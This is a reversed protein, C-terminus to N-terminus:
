AAGGSCEQMQLQGAFGQEVEEKMLACIQMCDLTAMGLLPRIVPCKKFFGQDCQPCVSVNM